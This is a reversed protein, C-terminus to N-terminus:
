TRREGNPSDSDSSNKQNAASVFLHLAKQPSTIHNATAFSMLLRLHAMTDGIQAVRVANEPMGATEVAGPASFQSLQNLHGLISEAAKMTLTASHSLLSTDIWEIRFERSMTLKTTGEITLVSGDSYHYVMTLRSVMWISGLNLVQFKLGPIALTFKDISISNGTRSAQAAELFCASLFRPVVASALEVGRGLQRLMTMPGTSDSKSSSNSSFSPAVGIRVVSTPAMHTQVVQLWFGPTALHNIPENLVFEVLDLLRIAAANGLHRRFIKANLEAQAAQMAPPPPPAPGEPHPSLSHNQPTPPARGTQPTPQQQPAMVPTITPVKNYPPQPQSALQPTHGHSNSASSRTGPALTQFTMRTASLPTAALVSTARQMGPRQTYYMPGSSIQGPGPGSIQGSIQGSIAGNGNAATGLLAHPHALGPPVPPIQGQPGVMGNGSPMTSQSSNPAVGPLGPGMGMNGM